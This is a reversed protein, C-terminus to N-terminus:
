TLAGQMHRQNLHVCDCIVRQICAQVLKFNQMKHYLGNLFNYTTNFCSYNWLTKMPTTGCSIPYFTQITALQYLAKNAVSKSTYYYDVFSKSTYVKKYM